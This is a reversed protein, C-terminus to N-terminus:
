NDVFRSSRKKKKKKRRNIDIHRSDLAAWIFDFIFFKGGEVVVFFLFVKILSIFLNLINIAWRKKM